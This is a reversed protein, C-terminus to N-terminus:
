WPNFPNSDTQVIGSRGNLEPQVELSQVPPETRNPKPEFWLASSFKAKVLEIPCADHAEDPGETQVIDERDDEVGRLDRRM